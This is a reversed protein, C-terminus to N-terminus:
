IYSITYQNYISSNLRGNNKAQKKKAVKITPATKRLTRMGQINAAKIIPVENDKWLGNEAWVLLSANAKRAWSPM